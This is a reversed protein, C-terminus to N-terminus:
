YPLGPYMCTTYYNALVREVIVNGQTCCFIGIKISGLVISAMNFRDPKKFHIKQPKFVSEIILSATSLILFTLLTDLDINVVKRKIIFFSKIKEAISFCCSDELKFRGSHFSVKSIKLWVPKFIKNGHICQVTGSWHFVDWFKDASFM